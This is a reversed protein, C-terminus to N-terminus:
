SLRCVLLIRNTSSLVNHTDIELAMIKMSFTILKVQPHGYSTMCKDWCEMVYTCCSYMDTTWIFGKFNGRKGCKLRERKKNVSCVDDNPTYINEYWSKTQFCQPMQM